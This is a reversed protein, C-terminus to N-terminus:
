AVFFRVKFSEAKAYLSRIAERVQHVSFIEEKSKLPKHSIIHLTHHIDMRVSAKKSPYFLYVNEM